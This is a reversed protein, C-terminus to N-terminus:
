QIMCAAVTSNSTEDILIACGNVKLKTFSDYAIPSATKIRVKLLDNLSGQEPSPEKVMTNVDIKYEMGKIVSKVRRSGIQLLYKNGTVLKQNSMWCLVVDFDQGVEPL